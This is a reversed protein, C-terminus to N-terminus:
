SAAGTTRWIEVVKTEAGGSPPNVPMHPLSVERVYGHKELFHKRLWAADQDFIIFRHPLQRSKPKIRKRLLAPLDKSPVSRPFGNEHMLRIMPGFAAFQDVAPSRRQENALAASVAPDVGDYIWLVYELPHDVWFHHEMMLIQVPAGPPVSPDIETSCNNHKIDSVVGHVASFSPSWHCPTLVHVVHNLPVRTAPPPLNSNRIYRLSEYAGRQYFILTAISFGVFSVMFVQTLLMRHKWLPITHIFSATALLLLPQLAPFLFRLEKHPLMSYSALLMVFTVLVMRMFANHRKAAGNMQPTRATVKLANPLGLFLITPAAVILPILPLYWWWPEVGFFKSLGKFVNFELFKYPTVTWRRYFVFDVSAIAAIWFLIWAACRVAVRLLSTVAAQRRVRRIANVSMPLGQKGARQLQLEQEEEILNQIRQLFMPILPLAFTTRMGCGLGAFFLFWDMSAPLMAALLMLAEVSNTLTRCGIFATYWATLSMLFAVHSSMVTPYMYKKAVSYMAWDLTGCTIGAIIRPIAFITWATDLGLTKLIWFVVAFPMPYLFSRIGERWEWTLEGKGFVTLYAVEVSQYWEDPADASRMVFLAIVIRYVVAIWFAARSSILERQGPFARVKGDAGNGELAPSKGHMDSGSFSSTDPASDPGPPLEHARSHM